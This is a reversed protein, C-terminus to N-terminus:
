FKNKQRGENQFRDLNLLKVNTNRVKKKIYFKGSISEIDRVKKDAVCFLLCFFDGNILFFCLRQIPRRPNINSILSKIQTVPRTLSSQQFMRMAKCQQSLGSIFCNNRLLNGTEDRPLILNTTNGTFVRYGQSKPVKKDLFFYM